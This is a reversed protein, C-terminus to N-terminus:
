QKLASLVESMNIQPETPFATAYSMHILKTRHRLYFNLKTIVKMQCPLVYFQKMVLTHFEHSASLFSM